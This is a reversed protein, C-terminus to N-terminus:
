FFFNFNNYNKGRLIYPTFSNNKLHMIFKSSILFHVWKSYYYNQSIMLRILEKEDINNFYQLDDKFCKPTVITIDM